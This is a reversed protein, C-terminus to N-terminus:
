PPAGVSCAAADPIQCRAQHCVAPESCPGGFPYLRKDTVSSSFDFCVSRDPVAPVCLGKGPDEAARCRLGFGCLAVRGGVEGCASGEGQVLFRECVKPGPSCVLEVPWLQCEDGGPVCPQGEARREACAGERCALHPLCPRDPGCEAGMGGPRKCRLAACVLGRACERDDFCLESEEFPQACVGCLGAAACAGTACQGDALCAAGDPLMGKAGCAELPDHAQEVRLFERCRADREKASGDTSLACARISEPTALSGDGQERQECRRTRRAVCSEMSGYETAFRASLCAEANSCWSGALETCAARLEAAPDLARADSEERSCQLLAWAGLFVWGRTM